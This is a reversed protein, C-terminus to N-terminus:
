NKSINEDDPMNSLITYKGGLRSMNEKWVRDPHNSFIMDVKPPLVKWAGCAIESELQNEGWGACGLYLRLNNRNNEAFLLSAESDPISSLLSVDEIIRTENPLVETTRCLILIHNTHVPGGIFLDLHKVAEHHGFHKFHTEAKLESKKNIILGLAGKESHECLFVVGENFNPDRLAPTAILFKGKMNENEFYM